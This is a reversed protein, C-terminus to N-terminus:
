EGENNISISLAKEASSSYLTSSSDIIISTDSYTISINSDTPKILGYGDYNASKVIIESKKCNKYPFIWANSAYRANSPNNGTNAGSFIIICPYSDVKISIQTFTNNLAVSHFTYGINGLDKINLISSAMEDLTYLGTDGTKSRIADGIATLKDTLAM